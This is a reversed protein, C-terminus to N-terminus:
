GPFWRPFISPCCLFIILTLLILSITLAVTSLIGKLFGYLVTAFLSERANEHRGAKEMARVEALRADIRQLLRDTEDEPM